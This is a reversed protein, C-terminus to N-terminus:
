GGIEPTSSSVPNRFWARTQDRPATEASPAPYAPPSVSKMRTLPRCTGDLCGPRDSSANGNRIAPPARAVNPDPSSIWRAVVTM